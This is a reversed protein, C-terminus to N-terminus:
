RDSRIAVLAMVSHHDQSCASSLDASDVLDVPLLLIHGVSHQGRVVPGVLRHHDVPRLHVSRGLHDVPVERGMTRHDVVAEEAAQVVARIQHRHFVPEVLMRRHAPVPRRHARRHRHRQTNRRTAAPRHGKISFPNVTTAEEVEEVPQVEKAPTQSYQYPVVSRIRVPRHLIAKITQVVQFQVM